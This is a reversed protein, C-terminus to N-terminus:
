PRREEIINDIEYIFKIKDFVSAIHLLNLTSNPILFESNPIFPVRITSNFCLGDGWNRMVCEANRILNLLTEKSLNLLEHLYYQMVDCLKQNVMQM